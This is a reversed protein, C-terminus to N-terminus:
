QSPWNPSMSPLVALPSIRWESFYATNDTISLVRAPSSLPMIRSPVALPMGTQRSMSSARLWVAVRGSKRIKPMAGALPRSESLWRSTTSAAMPLPMLM